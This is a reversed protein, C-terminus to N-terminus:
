DGHSSRGASKKKLAISICGSGTGIDLISVENVENKYLAYQEIVLQVLEETEPRPILVHENVRLKLKYFWAEGLVYQVPKSELLESLCSALHREINEAPLAGPTKLMDSRQVGAVSEFIWDTIITAENVSYLVQLEKLYHRYLEKVTM